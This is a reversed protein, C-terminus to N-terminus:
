YKFVIVNGSATKIQIPEIPKRKIEINSYDENYFIEFNQIKGAEFLTAYTVSPTPKTQENLYTKGADVITRINTRVHTTEVLRKSRSHSWDLFLAVVVLAVITSTIEVIM